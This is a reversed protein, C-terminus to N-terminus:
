LLRPVRTQAGDADWGPRGAVVGRPEPGGVGRAPRRGQRGGRISGAGRGVGCQSSGHPGDGLSGDREALDFAYGVRARRSTGHARERQVWTGRPSGRKSVGRDPSRRRHTLRPAFGCGGVARRIDCLGGPKGSAGVNKQPIRGKEDPLKTMRYAPDHARAHHYACLLRGNGLDTRGGKAWEQDHHAHTMSAPADCGEATCGAHQLVLAIRQSYTFFRTKRGLDLVQSKSGLVTPIVGAECAWRRALSPSIRTGTDLQAAKLGGLLTDLDMTVVVTANVGGAHPLDDAPYGAVYECFAQWMRHASPRGPEPAQRNVSTRHKPAAIGLLAKRLMEAIHTPISFRDATDTM